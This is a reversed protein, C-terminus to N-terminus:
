HSGDEPESESSDSETPAPAPTPASGSSPRASDDSHIDDPTGPIGDPGASFLVFSHGDPTLEFHVPNKWGDTLLRSTPDLNQLDTLATPLSGTRDEHQEVMAELINLRIETGMAPNGLAGLVGAAAGLFIFPLFVLTAIIGCSGLAGLVIGTIAFGKPERRVAFLSMIFGIPSLLGCSILGVLSVIFGALGLGNTQEASRTTYDGTM